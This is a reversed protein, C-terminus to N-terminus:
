AGEYAARLANLDLKTMQMMAAMARGAGAPDPGGLFKNLGSPVVQWSLGFKDKLWGCRGPSGGDATLKAWYDDVEDQTACDIVFSTAETFKFMPGGNLAIFDQAGLRFAITLVPADPGGKRSVSKVDSERFVSRYFAVAQEANDNFWLFPTIKQM